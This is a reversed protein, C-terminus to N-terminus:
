VDIGAAYGSAWAWQLNYGGLHGVVDLVEGVFYLGKVKRSEMTKSSIDATDVGGRTAHAKNYGETDSPVLKWEHLDTAIRKIERDSCQDFSKSIGMKKCWAEAFRKSLYGYLFNKIHSKPSVKKKATMDAFIDMGPLTDITIPVGKDWYSSIQLIAPGSLGTHTFLIDDSFTTKDCSVSAPFSIGALKGFAKKDNHSFRLPVLAPRPAVIKHGFQKAIRIGLDSTGLKPFSIGGTAIVLSKTDITQRSLKVTFNDGRDVSKVKSSFAFTVGLESCERTLMDLIDRASRRCFLQGAKKEEYPVRRKELMDVIDDPTFRALASKVFHPNQSVFNEPKTGTNTFNCKGSGSVVIKNGASQNHDVVLVSKGRKAAEIACMLGSAGAGIIAVDCRMTGRM